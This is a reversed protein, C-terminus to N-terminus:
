LRVPVSTRRHHVDRERLGGHVFQALQNPLMAGLLGRVQPHVDCAAPAAAEPIPHGEVVLEVLAVFDDLCVSDLDDHVRVAELVEVARADVVHLADRPASEDHAVRVVPGRASTALAEGRFPLFGGVLRFSVGVRMRVSSACPTSSTSERAFSGRSSSRSRSWPRSSDPPRRRTTLWTPEATSRHRHRSYDTASRRIWSETGWNRGASRRRSSLIRGLRGWASTASASRSTTASSVTRM